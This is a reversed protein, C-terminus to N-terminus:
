PRLGTVRSPATPASGDLEADTLRADAREADTPQLTLWFRQRMGRGQARAPQWHLDLAVQDGITRYNELTYTGGLAESSGTLTGTTLADPNGGPHCTNRRSWQSLATTLLCPYTQQLQGTVVHAASALGDQAARRRFQSADRKRSQLAATQVSLSSLLLVLSASLALPLM